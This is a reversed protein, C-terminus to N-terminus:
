TGTGLVGADIDVVADATACARIHTRFAIHQGEDAALGRDHVALLADAM